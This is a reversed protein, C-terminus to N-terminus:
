RVVQVWVERHDEKRAGLIANVKLVEYTASDVATGALKLTTIRDRETIDQGKKLFFVYDAVVVTKEDAKTEYGKANMRRCSVGTALDAWTQVPHGYADAAGETYRSITCTQPLLGTYSM